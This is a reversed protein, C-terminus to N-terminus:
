VIFDRITTICENKNNKQKKKEKKQWVGLLTLERIFSEAFVWTEVVTLSVTWLDLIRNFLAM